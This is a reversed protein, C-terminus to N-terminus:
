SSCKAKVSFTAQLQVLYALVKETEMQWWCESMYPKFGLEHNIRLMAANSDANDTRVLKVAPREQIIKELMAAKLWRGLGLNRYQPFVGMGGQEVLHGRNPNWSVETFGALEGTTKERVYMTWRETGMARILEEVQRLKEPTVHDDEVDLRDRPAQNMVEILRAVAELQDEPYPGSWFGLIFDSAREPARELWQRVLSHNLEALALQSIHAELGKEAGLRRMFAEGAPVRGITRAMMLRRNERHAVDAILALLRRGIGQRRYKPLVDLQFGVLHKNENTNPFDVRGSAVVRTENPSWAAWAFAQVFPPIHRWQAIREEAPTPPDDPLTEAQLCNAYDNLALYEHDSAGQLDFPKIHVAAGTM